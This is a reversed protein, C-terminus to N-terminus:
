IAAPRGVILPRNRKSTKPRSLDMNFFLIFTMMPLRFKNSMSVFFPQITRVWEQKALKAKSAERDPQRVEEVAGQVLPVVQDQRGGGVDALGAILPYPPLLSTATARLNM